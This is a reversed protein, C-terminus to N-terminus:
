NGVTCNFTVAEEVVRQGSSNASYGRKLVTNEAVLSDDM